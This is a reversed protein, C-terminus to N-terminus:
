KVPKRWWPPPVLREPPAPAYQVCSPEKRARTRRRRYALVRVPNFAISARPVPQSETSV